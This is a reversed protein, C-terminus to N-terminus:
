RKRLKAVFFGDSGDVNPWFSYLGNESRLQGISFDETDFEPHRDLFATVM